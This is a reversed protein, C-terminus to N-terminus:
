AHDVLKAVVAPYFRLGPPDDGAVGGGRTILTYEDVGLVAVDLALFGDVLTVRHLNHRFQRDEALLVIAVVEDDVCDSQALANRVTHDLQSVGDLREVASLRRDVAVSVAVAPSLGPPVRHLFDLRVPNRVGLIDLCATLQRAHPVAEYLGVALELQLGLFLGLFSQPM